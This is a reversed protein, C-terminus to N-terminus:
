NGKSWAKPPIKEYAPQSSYAVFAADNCISFNGYPVWAYGGVGWNTGWSNKVQWSGGHITEDWGTIAIIHNIGNSKGSLVGDTGINDWASTAAVDCSVVGFQLLAQKIQGVTPNNGNDGLNSSDSARSDFTTPKGGPCGRGDAHYPCKSDFVLGTKLIDVAFMGGSCGDYGSYAVCQQESLTVDKGDYIKVAGDLMQVSGFCYCSGCSAQDRVPTGMGATVWSFKKPLELTMPATKFEAGVILGKQGPTYQFGTPRSPVDPKPTPAPTPQPTPVPVPVPGPTPTPGNCSAAFLLALALFLNKM